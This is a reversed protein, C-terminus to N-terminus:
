RATAWTERLVHKLPKGAANRPISEVFVVHAPRKYAALREACHAKVSEASLEAGQRLVIFATGVEGWRDDAVGIVAVDAVNGNSAIAGEVEAPYVNEGGSIYMDKLRDALMHFGDSDRRAMDGTRLWGDVFAAASQEPKNWYGPSVSPGRIWIEGIEGTEREQGTEDCIKVEILPAPFGVSGHRESIATEDLPMHLVTGAESMGYGNVLAVGDKLYAAVLPPPLPAGGIFIAKLRRMREPAYGPQDRLISAMQPVAFYHTVGIEENRLCAITREPVFRDSIVLTGGMMLTTRAIAVLGITHFFPLDCFTVSGPVVEGVFSFNVASYFLNKRTLIVGKPTGTTGSTYLLISPTEADAKMSKIPTAAKILTDLSEEAGAFPMTDLRPSAAVLTPMVSAFEPEYVVLEPDCDRIIDALEAPGLRWNLPVYIARVRQCAFAMVLLDVGNRALSAVRFNESRAGYRAHLMSACRAIRDDLEAYTLSPGDPLVRIATRASSVKARYGVPDEAVLTYTNGLAFGAMDLETKHM